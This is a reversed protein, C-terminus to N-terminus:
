GVEKVEAGQRGWRPTGSQWQRGGGPGTKVEAPAKQEEGCWESVWPEGEPCAMASGAVIGEATRQEGSGKWPYTLRSYAANGGPAWM